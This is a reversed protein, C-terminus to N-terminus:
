KKLSTFSRGGSNTTWYRMMTLKGICCIKLQGKPLLSAFEEPSMTGLSAQLVGIPNGCECVHSPHLLYGLVAKPGEFSAATIVPKPEKKKRTTSSPGATNAKEELQQRSSIVETSTTPAAAAAAAAATTKVSPKRAGEEEKKTKSTTTTTIM